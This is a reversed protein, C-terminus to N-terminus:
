FPKQPVTLEKSYKPYKLNKSNSTTPIHIPNKSPSKSNQENSLSPSPTAPIHFPYNLPSTKKTSKKENSLSPPSIPKLPTDTESESLHPTKPSPHILSASYHSSKPSPTRSLSPSPQSRSQIFNGHLFSSSLSPSLHLTSKPQLPTFEFHNKETNKMQTLPTEGLSPLIQTYNLNPSSTSPLPSVSIPSSPLSELSPSPPPLTV